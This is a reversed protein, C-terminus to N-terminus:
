RWEGGSGSPSRRHCVCVAGHAYQRLFRNEQRIEEDIYIRVYEGDIYYHTFSYFLHIYIITFSDNEIRPYYFAQRKFHTVHYVKAARTV